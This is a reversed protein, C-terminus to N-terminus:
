SPNPFGGKQSTIKRTTEKLIIGRNELFKIVQIIDKTENKTPTIGSGENVTFDNKFKNIEKNVCYRKADTTLEPVEKILKKTRSKPAAYALAVLLEGLIEGSQIMESLQTKSFKINASLGNSFSKCIKSVQKYTLLLKHPFNTEVNSNGILNSLHNLNVENGTRVGHKLKHLQSQSM